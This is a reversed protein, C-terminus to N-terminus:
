SSFEENSRLHLSNKNSMVHVSKGLDTMEVTTMDVAVMMEGTAGTGHSTRTVILNTMVLEFEVYLVV